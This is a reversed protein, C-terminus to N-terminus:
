CTCVAVGVYSLHAGAEGMRRLGAHARACGMQHVALARRDRERDVRAPQHARRPLGPRRQRSHVRCRHVDHRDPALGPIGPLAVLAARFDTDVEIGLRAAGAGEERRGSAAISGPCVCARFSFTFFQLPPPWVCCGSEQTLPTPYSSTFRDRRTSRRRPSNRTGAPNRTAPRWRSRAKRDKGLSLHLADRQRGDRREHLHLRSRHDPRYCKRAPTTASANRSGSRMTPRRRTPRLM